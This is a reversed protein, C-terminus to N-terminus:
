SPYSTVPAIERRSRWDGLDFLFRRDAEIRHTRGLARRELQDCLVPRTKEIFGTLHHALKAAVDFDSQNIRFSLLGNIHEIEARASGLKVGGELLAQRLRKELFKSLTV